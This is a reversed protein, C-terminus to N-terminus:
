KGANLPIFGYRSFIHAAQGSRLFAMFKGTAARNKSSKIEAMPYVIPTYSGQPASTVLIASKALRADTRYVLGADVNGSDVYALVQRVDKAFVIRKELVNWLKMNVLTEKAYKGAPVIEPQGISFSAANRILDSFGRIKDKKEKAVLLVLENGLLDTRSDPIILGQSALADMQRKGASIFLDVPAGEEIQKQMLGSSGFNFYLEVAPEKEAYVKKIAYLADTLSIAASVQITTKEAAAASGANSAAILVTLAVYVVALVKKTLKMATEEGITKRGRSLLLRPIHSNNEAM